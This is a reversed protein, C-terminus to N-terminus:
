QKNIFNIFRQNTIENINNTEFLIESNDMFILKNSVKKAFEIDHSVIIITMNNKKFDEIIDVLNNIAEIDLASTPEDLLLIKPNMAISRAIAVRQKQGGSLESPYSNLKDLLNFKILLDMSLQGTQDKTKNLVLKPALEINEKITLNDFLSYDQFIMGLNRIINRIDKNYKGDKLLYEKNIIISGSDTKELNCILRLLTSKGSGSPGIISTVEGNNISFNINSLAVTNKFKKSLNEIKLIEM